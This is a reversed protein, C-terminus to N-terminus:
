FSSVLSSDVCNLKTEQILFIYANGVKIMQSIIKRKVKNYGGRINLSGIIM